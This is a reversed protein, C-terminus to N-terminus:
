SIKFFIVQFVNDMSVKANDLQGDVYGRKNGAVIWSYHHNVDNFVQQIIDLVPIEKKLNEDFIQINSLLHRLMFDSNYLIENIVLKEHNMGYFDFIERAERVIYDFENMLVHTALKKAKPDKIIHLEYFLRQLTPHTCIFRTEFKLVLASIAEAYSKTRKLIPTDDLNLNGVCEFFEQLHEKGMVNGQGLVFTKADLNGSHGIKPTLGDDTEAMGFDSM